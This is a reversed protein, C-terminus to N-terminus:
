STQAWYTLASWASRANKNSICLILRDKNEQDPSLQNRLNLIRYNLNNLDLILIGSLNKFLISSKWHSSLPWMFCNACLFRTQWFFPIIRMRVMNSPTAVSHGELATHYSWLAKALLRKPTRETVRVKVASILDKPLEMSWERVVWLELAGGSCCQSDRAERVIFRQVLFTWMLSSELSIRTCFLGGWGCNLIKKLASTSPM